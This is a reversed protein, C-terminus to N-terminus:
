EVAKSWKQNNYDTAMAEVGCLFTKGWSGRSFLPKMGGMGIRYFQIKKLNIASACKGSGGENRSSRCSNNPILSIHKM